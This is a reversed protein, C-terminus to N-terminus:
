AEVLSGYPLELPVEGIHKEFAQRLGRLARRRCQCLGAMKRASLRRCLDVSKLDQRIVATRWGVNEGAGIEVPLIRIEGKAGSILETFVLRKADPTFSSPSQRYKSRTLQQPAGAGDARMWFM